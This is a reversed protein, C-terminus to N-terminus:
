TFMNVFSTEKQLRFCLVKFYDSRVVYDMREITITKTNEACRLLISSVTVGKKCELNVALAAM